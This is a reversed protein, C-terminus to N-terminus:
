YRYYTQRNTGREKEVQLSDLVQQGTNEKIAGTYELLRDALTSKGHDVHAIISFNRIREVPIEAFEVKEEPNTKTCFCRASGNRFKKLRSVVKYVSKPTKITRKILFM